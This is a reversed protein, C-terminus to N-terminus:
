RRSRIKIGFLGAIGALSFLPPKWMVLAGSSSGQRRDRDLREVELLTLRDARRQEPSRDQDVLRDAVIGLAADGHRAFLQAAEQNATDRLERERQAASSIGRNRM